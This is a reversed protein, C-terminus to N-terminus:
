SIMRKELIYIYFNTFSQSGVNRLYVITFGYEDVEVRQPYKV